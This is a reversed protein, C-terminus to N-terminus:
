LDISVQRRCRAALVVSCALQAEAKVMFHSEQQRATWRPQLRVSDAIGHALLGRQLVWNGTLSLLSFFVGCDDYNVYVQLVM